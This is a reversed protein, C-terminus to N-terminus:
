DSNKKGLVCEIVDYLKTKTIVGGYGNIQLREKHHVPADLRQAISKKIHTRQSGSDFVVKCHIVENSRGESVSVQLQATQLLISDKSTVAANATTETTNTTTETTDAKEDNKEEIQKPPKGNCISTHHRGKCKFCNRRTNCEKMMHNPKTCLFCRRRKKLIERRKTIDTM